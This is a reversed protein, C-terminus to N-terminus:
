REDDDGPNVTPLGCSPCYHPVVEVYISCNECRYGKLPAVPKFEVTGTLALKVARRIEAKTTM